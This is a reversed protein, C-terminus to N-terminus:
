TPGAPGGVGAEVDRVIPLLVTTPPTSEVPSVSATQDTLIRPLRSVVIRLGRVFRNLDECLVEGAAKAMAYETLEAPRETVAISSPYFVSLPRADRAKLATCVDYFGQVYFRNAEDYIAPAFLATRRTFIPASAFYYLSTPSVNLTALQGSAPQRVDYAMTECAGGWAVIEDRVARAEATGVAFTIVPTGGGAAILKACVEGLGRSGGLVLATHGRFEDGTVLQSLEHMSAQAVPPVRAFAEISGQLGGGDVGITVIRFRDDIQMVRYQIGDAAVANVLEVDFSSFISHLGPCVMGVLRSLCACATATTAGLTAAAAPFASALSAPPQAFRLMGTADALQNISRDLAREPWARAPLDDMTRAIAATRAGFWLTLSTIARSGVLLQARLETETRRTVNLVVTDGVYAVTSFQIKMRRIPAPVLDASALQDLAWLVMHMGHVAPLGLQTRRAAVPDLHMPNRDGSLEAFRHQDGADFPKTAVLITTSM